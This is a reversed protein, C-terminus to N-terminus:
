VGSGKKRQLLQQRTQIVKMLLWVLIVIDFADM